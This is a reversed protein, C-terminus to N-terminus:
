KTYETLLNTRFMISRYKKPTINEEEKFVKIFHSQSSFCLINAIEACSKDSFRLMNKAERIKEKKIYEHISVGMQQHFLRSLYNPHLQTVESLELVSIRSHLHSYIYNVCLIIPKSCISKKRLIQMRNAYELCVKVYLDEVQKESQCADAKQIYYDSLQFAEEQTMGKETCFRALMATTIIFHYIHNYLSYKSLINKKSVNFLPKEKYLIEKVKNVNGEQVLRYFWFENEVPNHKLEFKNSDRIEDLTQEKKLENMKLLRWILQIM